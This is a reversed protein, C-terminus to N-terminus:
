IPVKWSSVNQSKLICLKQTISGPSYIKFCKTTWTEHYTASKWDKFLRVQHLPPDQSLQSLLLKKEGSPFIFFVSPSHFL